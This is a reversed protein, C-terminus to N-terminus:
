ASPVKGGGGDGAALVIATRAPLYVPLPAGPRAPAARRYTQGAALRGQGGFEAADTDLALRYAAGDVPVEYDVLSQTPHFNFCAVIGGRALGVFKDDNHLKLCRYAAELTRTSRALEIMARDFAGLFRYKLDPDDLLHWQRRAYHYSWGNGARPFDIWEPHGFENGMFNLYGPGATLLTLLRIMKHLAIGREVVLHEDGVQMHEYMAADCLEFILTKSGVIAKDHSEVYSITEEDARRNTLETWLTDIHWDEDRCERLFRFWIDPVGMALRYDFGCGGEDLPAALGPMGSVDEAVTMAAPRFEHILRNALMLYLVADEDLTDGFYRDYSTFPPGFGHHLYLMSTVGDFRFGDVHFEELWYRCNSLLFHVVEHKGYDFCRSDWAPHRGRAGDHFYQYLTGDFRSLGEVENNVAHSHVLDIIVSLGEGHIADILERLEDPTGFRSSPAFFNAVHYGFSGYYPHEMIAMLQITNYGARVIRPLIHERFEAYTGVRGWELAMGVHAEYVLPVAPRRRADDHRWTYPQPPQWIQANFVLTGPDQVVRRAYAPIRDGAGGEWAVHLRYLDEHRLADPPLEIEWEGHDSIRRLAFEPRPEWGSFAGVLAVSVAHPAWERFVWGKATRHMGFYHHGLAHDALTGRGDVLAAIREEARRRRGRIAEAYPTLYPDDLLATRKM